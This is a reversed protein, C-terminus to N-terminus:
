LRHLYEAESGMLTQQLNYQSMKALEMGSQRMTALQQTDMFQADGFLQRRQTSNMNRSMTNLGEVASVALTPAAKALMVAGYKLGLVEGLAFEKGAHLAARVNGHGAEKSDKFDSIAFGINMVHGLNKMTSKKLNKAAQETTNEAVEKAAKKNAHVSAYTYEYTDNVVRNARYKVDGKFNQSIYELAEDKSSTANIAKKIAEQVDDPTNTLKGNDAWKDFEIKVDDVSNIQSSDMIPPTYPNKEDWDLYSKVLAEDDIAKNMELAEEHMLDIDRISFGHQNYTDILNAAAKGEPTNLSSYQQKLIDEVNNSAIKRQPAEHVQKIIAEGDNIPAQEPVFVSELELQRAAHQAAREEAERAAREEAEKIAQKEAEEEAKLKEAKVREAERAQAQREAERQAEWEENMQLAEAHANDIQRQEKRRRKREKGERKAEEGQYSRWEKNIQEQFLAEEKERQLREYYQQKYYEDMNAVDNNM